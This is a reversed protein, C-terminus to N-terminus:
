QSIAQRQQCRNGWVKKFVITRPVMIEFPEGPFNRLTPQVSAYKGMIQGGLQGYQQTLASSVQQGYSPQTTGNPNTQAPPVSVQVSATVLSMGLAVGFLRLYHNDVDSDLGAAGSTDYAQMGALNLENGDPDILGTWILLNRNQGIAVKSDVRGIATSMPPILLFCGTVTDYVGERVRAKVEGPLDSNVAGELRMPLYAGRKVELASVPPTPSFPHYGISEKQANKIFDIKEDQDGDPGNKKQGGGEAAALAQKTALDIAARATDVASGGVKPASIGGADFSKGALGNTRAQRMRSMRDSQQQQAAQEQPTLQRPAGTNGGVGGVASSGAGDQAPIASKAGGEPPIMGGMGPVPKNGTDAPVRGASASVAVTPKEGKKAEAAQRAVEMQKLLEEPSPGPPVLSPTKSAKPGAPVAGPTGDGTLEEPAKGVEKALPSTNKKGEDGPKEPASDMHDLALLFLAIVFGVVGLFLVVVRKSIRTARQPEPRLEGDMQPVGASLDFLNTEAM